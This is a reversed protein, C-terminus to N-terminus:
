APITDIAATLDSSGTRIVGLQPTQPLRSSFQSLNLTTDM